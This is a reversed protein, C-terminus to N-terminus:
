IGIPEGSVILDVRRNKRRGEPTDNGAVPHAGDMGVAVLAPQPLGQDVLFRRVGEARNRSLRDNFAPRGTTDTHGLIRIRLGPCTLLIGAVKALNVRAPASLRSSGSPFAVDTLTAMLGEETERTQLLRNLQEVLKRRVALQAATAESAAREQRHARLSESTAMARAADTQARAAELKARLDETTEREQALCQAERRKGAVIRADESLLVARRAALVAGKEWLRKEEEMRNLQELAAQYEPPALVDAQEAQAIRLASRAQFVYPSIAGNLPSPAPSAELGYAGRGLLDFSAEVAQVAPRTGHIPLNELVVAHSVRTVAFHPEATVILAFSQFHTMADVHAKGRVAVVEGLNVARGLPSIAWLVYTFYEPGFRSAPELGTFHAHIRMRGGEGRVSAQGSAGSALASGRFGILTSGDVFPYHFAQTTSRALVPSYLPAAATAPNAFACLALLPWSITRPM